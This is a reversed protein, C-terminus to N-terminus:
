EKHKKGVKVRTPRLVQGNIFYGKQLVELIEDDNGDGVAVAEHITPNFKKNETIEEIGEKRLIDRVQNKISIIGKVWDNEKMEKPVEKEARELNDLTTLFELFIKGKMFLQIVEKSKEEEKRYNIFDARERQWGKLYEEKEEQCKKLKEQLRKIKKKIDTGGKEDDLNEIYELEEKQNKKKDRSKM